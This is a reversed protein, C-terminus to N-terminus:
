GMRNRRVSGRRRRAGTAGTCGLEPWSGCCSRRAALFSGSAEARSGPGQRPQIEVSSRRRHLAGGGRKGRRQCNGSGGLGRLVKAPAGHTSGHHGSAQLHGADDEEV